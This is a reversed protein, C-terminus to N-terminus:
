KSEFHCHRGHRGVQTHRLTKLRETPSVWVVAEVQARSEPRLTLFLGLQGLLQALKLRKIATNRCSNM